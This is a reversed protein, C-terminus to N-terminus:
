GDTKTIPIRHLTWEEDDETLYFFHGGALTFLAPGTGNTVAREAQAPPDPIWITAGIGGNEDLLLFKALNGRKEPTQILLGEGCAHMSRIPPHHEAFRFDVRAKLNEFGISKVIPDAQYDEMIKKKDQETVAVASSPKEFRGLFKGAPDYKRVVLGEASDDIYIADGYVCFYPPDPVMDTSNLQIPSIQRFFEKIKKFDGDHISITHYETKGDTRDLAKVVFRDGLPVAEIGLVVRKKKENLFRGEKSFYLIKDLSDLVIHNNRFYFNNTYFLSKKIEGPGEGEGGFRGLRKLGKQSFMHVTQHELVYIRGHGIKLVSPDLVGDLPGLTEASFSSISFFFLFLIILVYLLLKKM